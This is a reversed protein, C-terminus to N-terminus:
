DEKKFKVIEEVDMKTARSVSNYGYKNRLSDIVKDLKEQKEDKNKDFLSCNKIINFLIFLFIFFLSLCIVGSFNIFIIKIVDM